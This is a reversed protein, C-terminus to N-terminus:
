LLMLTTALKGGAHHKRGLVATWSDKYTQDNKAMVEHRLRYARNPHQEQALRISQGYIASFLSGSSIQEM